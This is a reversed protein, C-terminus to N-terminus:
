INIENCKKIEKNPKINSSYKNLFKLFKFTM